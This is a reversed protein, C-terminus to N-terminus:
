RTPQEVNTVATYRLVFSWAILDFSRMRGMSSRRLKCWVMSREPLKQLATELSRVDALAPCSTQKRALYEAWIFADARFSGNVTCVGRHWRGLTDTIPTPARKSQFLFVSASIASIPSAKLRNSSPGVASSRITLFAAQITNRPNHADSGPRSTQVKDHQGSRCVSSPHVSSSTTPTPITSSNRCTQATCIAYMNTVHFRFM